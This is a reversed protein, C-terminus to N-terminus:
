GGREQYLSFVSLWGAFVILKISCFLFCTGTGSKKNIKHKM